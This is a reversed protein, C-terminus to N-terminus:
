SVSDIWIANQSPSAFVTVYYSYSSFGPPVIAEGGELFCFRGTPDLLVFLLLILAPIYPLSDLKFWTGGSRCKLIPVPFYFSALECLGCVMKPDTRPRLHAM